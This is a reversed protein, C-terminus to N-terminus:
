RYSRNLEDRQGVRDNSNTDKKHTRHGVVEVLRVDGNEDETASRRGVPVLLSFVRLSPFASPFCTRKRKRRVMAGSEDIEITRTNRITEM